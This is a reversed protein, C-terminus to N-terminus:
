TLEIIQQLFSDTPKFTSRFYTLYNPKHWYFISFVKDLWKQATHFNNNLFSRQLLCFYIAEMLGVALLGYFILATCIFTADTIQAIKQMSTTNMKSWVWICLLLEETQQLLYIFTAFRKRNFRSVAFNIISKYHSEKFLDWFWFIPLFHIIFLFEPKWESGNNFLEILM